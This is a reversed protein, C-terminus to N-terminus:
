REWQSILIKKGTKKWKVELPLLTLITEKYSDNEDYVLELKALIAHNGVIDALYQITKDHYRFIVKAFSDEDHFEVRGKYLHALSIIVRKDRESFSHLKRVPRIIM